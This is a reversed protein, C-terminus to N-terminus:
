LAGFRLSVATNKWTMLVPHNLLKLHFTARAGDVLVAEGRSDPLNVSGHIDTFISFCDEECSFKVVPLKKLRSSRECKFFLLLFDAM